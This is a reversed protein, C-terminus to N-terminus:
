QNGARFLFFRAAARFSILIPLARYGRSSLRPWPLFDWIMVGEPLVLVPELNLFTTMRLGVVDPSSDM